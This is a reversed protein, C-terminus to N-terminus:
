RASRAVSTYMQEYPLATFGLREYLRRAGDNDPELELRYRAAPFRSRVAEILACGAGSGRAEPRVYIEDIWVVKGGAEQSWTLALLIYGAPKGGSLAILAKAYPSNSVLERFTNEIYSRPIDHLVAPSSYFESAMTLYDSRDDATIERVTLQEHKM